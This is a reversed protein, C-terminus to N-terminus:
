PTAAWRKIVNSALPLTEFRQGANSAAAPAQRVKAQLQMWQQNRSPLPLSLVIGIRPSLLM